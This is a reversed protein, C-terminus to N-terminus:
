EYISRLIEGAVQPRYHSNEYYNTKDATFQNIGSFDFVNEPGFLRKLADLDEPALRKQDYLPSIVIRYRTNNKKLIDRIASLQAQQETGIVADSFVPRSSRAYFVEGKGSYYAQANRVISDELNNFSVENDRPNYGVRIRSLMRDAFMYPKIEGTVKYDLCARIFKPSTIFDKFFLLQFSLWSQDTLRYDKVFLHGTSNVTWKLVEQDLIILADKLPAHLSDILRIKRYIGFLTESNADFHFVSASDGIFKRWQAAPYFMSRSNGFIYADYHYKNRNQLFSEVSIFDKNLVIGWPRNNQYYADYKYLVKFPDTIFYFLVVTYVPFTFILLKILLRKM